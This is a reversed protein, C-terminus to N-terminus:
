SWRLPRTRTMFRDGALYVAQTSQERQRLEVTTGGGNRVATIDWWGDARLVQRGGALDGITSPRAPPKAVLRVDGVCKITKDPQDPLTTNAFSATVTVTGDDHPDTGTVLLWWGSVLIEIDQFRFRALNRARVRRMDPDDIGGHTAPIPPRTQVPTGAPVHIRHGTYGNRQGILTTGGTDPKSDVGVLDYWDDQHRVQVANVYAAATPGDVLDTLPLLLPEEPEPLPGDVVMQGDAPPIKQEALRRLIHEFAVPVAFLMTQEDVKQIILGAPDAAEYDDTTVQALMPFKVALATVIRKWHQIQAVLEDTSLDDTETVVINQVNVNWPDGSGDGDGNATDLHEGIHRALQAAKEESGAPLQVRVEGHETGGDYAIRHVPITAQYTVIGPLTIGSM